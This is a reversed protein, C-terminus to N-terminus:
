VNKMGELECYIEVLKDLTANVNEETIDSTMDLWEAEEGPKWGDRHINVSYCDVHPSYNFFADAKTNNSIEMCLTLVGHLRDCAAATPKSQM